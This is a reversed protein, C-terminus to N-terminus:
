YNDNMEFLSWHAEFESRWLLPYARQGGGRGQKSRKNVGGVLYSPPALQPQSRAGIQAQVLM